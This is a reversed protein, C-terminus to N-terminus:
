KEETKNTTAAVAAATKSLFLLLLNWGSLCHLYAFSFTKRPWTLHSMKDLNNRPSDWFIQHKGTWQFEKRAIWDLWATFEDYLRSYYCFNIPPWLAIIFFRTPCLSIFYICHCLQIWAEIDNPPQFTPPLRVYTTVACSCLVFMDFIYIYM